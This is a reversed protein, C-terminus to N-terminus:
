GDGVSDDSVCIIIDKPFGGAAPAAPSFPAIERTNKRPNGYHTDIM